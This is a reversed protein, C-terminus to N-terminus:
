NKRPIQIICFNQLVSTQNRLLYLSWAVLDSARWVLREDSAFQLLLIRSFTVITHFYLKLLVSTIPSVDWCKFFNHIHEFILWNWHISQFPNLHFNDAGLFFFDTNFCHDNRLSIIDSIAHRTKINACLKTSIFLYKLRAISVTYFLFIITMMTSSRTVTLNKAFLM